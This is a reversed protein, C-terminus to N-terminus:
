LWVSFRSVELSSIMMSSDDGCTVGCTAVCVCTVAGPDIGGDRNVGDGTGDATGTGDVMDTSGLMGTVDLMDIGDFIGDLMGDFTGDLTDDLMGDVIGIDDVMDDLIGIGDLMGIDDIGTSDTGTLPGSVCLLLASEDTTADDVTETHVLM